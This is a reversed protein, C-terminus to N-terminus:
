RLAVRKSDMDRTRLKVEAKQRQLMLLEVDPDVVLKEPEFACRITIPKKEGAALTVTTRSDAYAESPKPEPQAKRDSFRKGKTGAITVTASGTGVNEINARVVWSDGDKESRADSVLYQPVVKDFVWQKTFADFAATDPAHRRMVEVFDEVLPHDPNDSYTAIYDRLGAIAADWGMTKTMMWFVWGGRDYMVARDGPLVNSDLKNLPREADSRRSNAYDDEIQRCFAMRQELGKVQEVLLITSFHAMGESLVDGGPGDGPMTILPWWQHAAEHAAVWFAANAKPESKTLFGINESFTINTPPGQAYTALGAFESLRLEKWRYPTFWEGYWHRAGALAELMEDVNYPHRADYYVAVGDGRKVQWKGLVLNFARLPADSKWETVRKGDKVSESERAGTANHQFAAPSTVRMRTDCWSDFMASEAPLIRRHWDGPFVRPDTKNKDKDIGVDKVYGILPAMGTSSFGTLVVGSPLIFEMTGGGNKSVGNPFKGDFAFGIEMRDGPALPRAPKFVYLGAREEPKASDGDMTWHVNKWHLGGTVPVSTLTDQTHNVLAYTGKSRLWGKAPEVEVDIDVAALSPLKADRFTEYNKKWYDREKKETAGGGRGSHVQLNLATAAVVPVLAWPALRLAERGINAPRMRHVTRTADRERRTFWRVAIVTLLASLGIAVIRNLVLASRDLELVSIDSWRTTSWLDWNFTWTMKGRMQYFGTLCMAGLGLAYTAYRNGSIAFCASVFCTWLLFTPALLLGWLLAFPAIHFPVKNQIALVISDGVLAGFIIVLGLAVNALAKGLLISTTRLPSAYFIPAFGTNKERSLSETTYFLILMCILLTLAGMQRMALIGPTSLLQTDFAGTSVVESFTQLLIMPVFLYLGPQSWLERMEVRATQWV